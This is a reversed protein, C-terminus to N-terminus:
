SGDSDLQLACFHGRGRRGARHLWVGKKRRVVESQRKDHVFGGRLAHSLMHEITCIYYLPAILTLYALPRESTSSWERPPQSATSHTRANAFKRGASRSSITLRRM